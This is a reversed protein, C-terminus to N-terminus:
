YDWEEEGLVAKLNYIRNDRTVYLLIRRQVAESLVKGRTKKLYECVPKVYLTSVPKGMVVRDDADVIYGFSETMKSLDVKALTEPKTNPEYCQARTVPNDELKMDAPAALAFGDKFCGVTKYGTKAISKRTTNYHYYLGDDKKAWFDTTHYEEPNTIDVYAIPILEKGETDVMGWKDNKKLGFFNYLNGSIDDYKFPIITTGSRDIVGYVGDRKVSFLLKDDATMPFKIDEYGSLATIDQNQDDFVEWTKKDNMAAWLGTAESHILASYGTRLTKGNKDIFSCTNNNVPAIEGIFDGHTWLKIDNFKKNLTAAIFNQGTTLNHYGCTTTSKTINYYRVMGNKPLMVFYYKNPALLQRGEGDMIGCNSESYGNGSMGLYSCDTKLTDGVYHKSFQLSMGEHMSATLKGKYSFEYLGKYRPQVLVRGNADIIGYKANLMYTKKDAKNAKGGLTILAKGYCNPKSIQSYKADLLINGKHDALGVKKGTNLLYLGNGWTSIQTYKLPVVVNGTADILGSKGSKTVIALGDVFPQASEYACKIVENGSADVYGVKGKQNVHIRLNQASLSLTFLGMAVLCLLLKNKM